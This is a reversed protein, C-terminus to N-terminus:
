RRQPGSERRGDPRREGHGHRREQGRRGERGDHGGGRHQRPRRVVPQRVVRPPRGRLASRQCARFRVGLQDAQVHRVRRHGLTIARVVGQRPASGKRQRLLGPGQPIEGRHHGRPSVHPEHAARQVEGGAIPGARQDAARAPFDERRGVLWGVPHQRQPEIECWVHPWPPEHAAWQECGSGHDHRGDVADRHEQAAAPLAGGGGPTKRCGGKAREQAGRVGRSAEHARRRAGAHPGADQETDGDRHGDELPRGRAQGGRGGAGQGGGATAAAGALHGRPDQGQEAPEEEGVAVAAARGRARRKEEAARHGAGAGQLGEGHPRRGGESGEEAEGDAAQGDEVPPAGARHLDGGQVEQVGARGPLAAVPAPDEARQRVLPVGGGAEPRGTGQAVGPDERDEQIHNQVEEAPDGGADAGPDEDRRQAAQAESSGHAGAEGPHAGRRAQRLHCHGQVHADQGEEELLGPHTHHEQDVAGVQRVEAARFRGAQLVGDDQGCGM